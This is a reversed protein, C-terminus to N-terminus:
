IGTSQMLKINDTGETQVWIIEGRQQNYGFTVEAAKDEENLDATVRWMGKGVVFCFRGDPGTM